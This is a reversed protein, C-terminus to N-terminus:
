GHNLSSVIDGVKWGDALAHLVSAYDKLFREVFADSYKKTNYTLNCYFDDKRRHMFFDFIEEEYDEIEEYRAKGGCFDFEENLDEGQYAFAGTLPVSDGEYLAHRRCAMIHEQTQRVFAEATMDDQWRVCLPHHRYIAGLTRQYRVDDRANYITLMVAAQEGNSLSQLLGFAAALITGDTVGVSQTFADVKALNVHIPVMIDRTENEDQPDLDGAVEGPRETFSRIYDRNWSQEQQYEPTNITDEIEDYYDFVSYEEPVPEEGQYAADVDQLFIDISDGDIIPHIFDFYFVKTIRGDAEHVAFLRMVFMRTELKNRSQRINPKLADFDKRSLTEVAPKLDALDGAKWRLSGDSDTTLRADVAPHAKLTKEIAVALQDLDTDADLYITADCHLGYGEELSNGWDYHLRQLPGFFHTTREKSSKVESSSKSILKAIGAPTKGEYVLKLNLKLDRCASLLRIISLSDGGAEFFDTEASVKEMGLAESFGRVLEEETANAPAVYEKEDVHISPIPLSKKDLKGNQNRPIADIQVFAAPVMYPPKQERIFNALAEQDVAEDSVVYAAIFRGGAPNDLAVVAADRIAPYDRVVAEVEALEVRFGRIKVLGDRRGVFEINGDPRYRVFDGTRYVTEYGKERSFPNPIFAKKTEEPRHLYGASVQEGAIWLEGLAGPPVRRGSADVIYIATNDMPKGIPVDEEYKTMLYCTVAVTTETPGYQNVFVYPYVPKFPILKEGGGVIYKLSPCDMTLAFQRGVQSPLDAISIHHRRIIDAIAPLDQKKEETIIVVAAGVTLAPYVDTLFGDFGYSNYCSIRTSPTPNFYRRYWAAYAMLQRHLLCVGKPVGTTGSTYILNFLDDPQPPEVGAKELSEVEPLSPIESIRLRQGSYDKFNGLRAVLSDDVIMFRAAADKVMFALREDPYGPDLPQYACGAKLVGLSAIVMYESRPIFVPVTDGRKMGHLSLYCALRNSLDDVQAYTYSNSECIVAVNQPFAAAQARFQDIITASRDYDHRTQNFSDLLQLTEEALLNVEALSESKPFSMLIERWTLALIHVEDATHRSAAYSIILQGNEMRFIYALRSRQDQPLEGAFSLVVGEESETKERAGTSSASTELLAETQKIFLEPSLTNSWDSHLLAYGSGNWVWIDADEVAAYTGQLYLVGAALEAANIEKDFSLSVSSWDLVENM